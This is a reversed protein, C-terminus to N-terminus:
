ADAAVERGELLARFGDPPPLHGLVRWAGAAALTPEDYGGTAVGIARAEIAAACRVDHPTDGIVFVQDPHVVSGPASARAMAARAITSRDEDRESFAGDSFYRALGYHRLKAEAGRRTNGTLLLSRTGTETALAELIELVNPMVHGRRRTLAAPLHDEYSRVLREVVAPAPAPQGGLEVLLRRAIPFDPHGATDFDSLDVQVGAVDHLAHEWAHIGSRATTLLTGDIDWFLLM